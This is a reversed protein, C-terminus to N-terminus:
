AKNEKRWFLLMYNHGTRKVTNTIVDVYGDEVKKLGKSAYFSVSEFSHVAHQTYDVTM